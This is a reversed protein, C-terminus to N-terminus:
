IHVTNTGFPDKCGLGMPLLPVCNTDEGLPSSSRAKASTNNWDKKPTLNIHDKLYSWYQHWNHGSNTGFHAKCGLSMLILPVCNPMKAWPVSNCSTRSKSCM